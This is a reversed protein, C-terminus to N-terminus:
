PRKVLRADLWLAHDWQDGRDAFDVLLALRPAGALDVRVPVLDDGGRVIGSEYAKQWDGNVDQVYVRFM